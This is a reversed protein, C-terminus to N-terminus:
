DEITLERVREMVREADRLELRLEQWQTDTVEQGSEVGYRAKVWSWYDAVVLGAKAFEGELGEVQRVVMERSSKLLYYSMVERLLPLPLLQKVANRQAKHVAKTFAYPDAKGGSMKAQEFAGYRSTRKEVDTAKVIARFSAEGEEVEIDSVEIGGRRNAAENIGALTLGEVTRGGQKFSYVYEQIAHGQMMRVITSDDLREIEQVGPSLAAAAMEEAM